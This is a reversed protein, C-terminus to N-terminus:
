VISRLEIIGLIHRKIRGSVHVNGIRVIIKDLFKVRRPIEYSTKITCRAARGERIWIINGDIGRSIHIHRAASCLKNLLETRRTSENCLPVTREVVAIRRPAYGQIRGSIYVYIIARWYNLLEIGITM